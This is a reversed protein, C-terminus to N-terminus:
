KQKQLVPADIPALLFRRFVAGYGAFFFGGNRDLFQDKNARYFAPLRYWPLSPQDHHAAHLNNNLYL